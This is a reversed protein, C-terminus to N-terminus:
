RDGAGWSLQASTLTGTATLTGPATPATTDPNTVPRNM